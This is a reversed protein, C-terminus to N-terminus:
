NETVKYVSRTRGKGSKESSGQSSVKNDRLYIEIVGAESSGSEADQVRAPNGKLVVLESKADYSAFDSSARRNPQTIIVNQEISSRLLENEEGLFIDAKEGMLRDTGQRIDVKTTYRLLRQSRFYSMSGSSVSVPITVDRNGVKRKVDYLLSQVNGDADFRGQKQDILFREARVYNKDQWGRANVSYIATEARHDIEASEATVFVPKKANGFPTAGGSQVQSYYTTSVNGKLFSKQDRPNWDIAAAKARARSDWVTPEGDRLRVTKDLLSYSMKEAVGNRDGESFKCDGIANLKQVDSSNQSFEATLQEAMLIQNVHEADAVTPIRVTRTIKGGFCNRASNSLPFFDCEFRPAMVKTIYNESSATLPTVLLEANGNAVATSIFKGDPSFTTIVTDATLQRNASNAGGKPADLVITTRGETRMQALIGGAKFDLKISGPSSMTVKSYDAEPQPVLVAKSDNSAAAHTISRDQAFDATLEAATVLITRQPEKREIYGSGLVSANKLQKTPYLDANIKEGKVVSDDQTIQATGTLEIEGSSQRYLAENASITTPGTGSDFVIGVGNRLTFKSIFREYLAYGSRVITSSKDADRTLISVDDFLEASRIERRQDGADDLLLVARNASLESIRGTVRDTLHLNPSRALDIREATQDYIASGSRLLASPEGQLSADAYQRIEVKEPLTIKKSIVEVTAGSSTGVINGRTFEVEEEAIASDSSKSYTVQETKVELDDRTIFHVSGALYATFNKNSEPVYIANDARIKDSREGDESFVEIYSNTLQQHNDSFTTARDAKIYYKRVNGEFETREYGEVTAVVDNSLSTPFGKMRFAKDRGKLLFAGFIVLFLMCLILMAGYRVYRPINARTAFNESKGSTIEGM